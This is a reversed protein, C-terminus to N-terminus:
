IAQATGINGSGIGSLMRAFFLWPLSGALAFMLYGIASMAISILMIPRRGVRDSLRGWFPACIFTMLSYIAGLWTVMMPTAGLKEAFFPQIPIILGFGVLDLFVTFFVIALTRKQTAADTRNM